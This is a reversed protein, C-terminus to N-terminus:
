REPRPYKPLSRARGPAAGRGASTVQDDRVAEAIEVAGDGAQLYGVRQGAATATTSSAATPRGSTRALRAGSRSISDVAAAIAPPSRERRMSWRPPCCRPRAAPRPAPCSAPWCRPRRGPALPRRPGRGAIAPASAANRRRRWGHVACAASRPARARRTRGAAPRRPWGRLFQQPQHAQDGALGAPHAPQHVIEQQQRLNSAPRGRSRRGTSRALMAASATWCARM